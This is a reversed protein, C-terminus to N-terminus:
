GAGGVVLRVTRSRLTSSGGMYPGDVFLPHVLGADTIEYFGCAYADM